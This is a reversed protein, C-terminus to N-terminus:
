PTVPGTTTTGGPSPPPVPLANWSPLTTLMVGNADHPDKVPTVIQRTFLAGVAGVAAIIVSSDIVGHHHVANVIMVAAAVVAGAAALYGGPNTVPNAIRALM